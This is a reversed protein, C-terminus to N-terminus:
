GGKEYARFIMQIVPWGLTGLITGLTLVVLLVVKCIDQCKITGLLKPERSLYASAAYLEEGMLTYDCTTIFFPLQTFADTGAIQIAGTLSGAEALILSEAFFYGMFFNAAPRRRSMIGAVAAVYPFQESAVMIVNGPKFADPRGAETYGEQVVEYSISYTIPDQNVVLLDSDYEAIRRSIRGLVSLAALVAIDGVGTLGHVFLAPKGMETARGVAEDIAELGAIPRVFIDPHRRVYAIMALVLAAFLISVIFNVLLAADFMAARARASPVFDFVAAAGGGVAGVGVRFYYRRGAHEREIDKLRKSLQDQIRSLRALESSAFPKEPRSMRRASLMGQLKAAKAASYDALAGALATRAAQCAKLADESKDAEARPGTQRVQAAAELIASESPPEAQTGASPLPPVDAGQMAQALRWMLDYEIKPLSIQRDAIDLYHEAIQVSFRLEDYADYDAVRAEASAARARAAELREKLVPMCKRVLEPTVSDPETSIAASLYLKSETTFRAFATSFSAANRMYAQRLGDLSARTEALRADAEDLRSQLMHARRLIALKREIAALERLEVETPKHKPKHKEAPPPAKAPAEQEYKRIAFKYDKPDIPWRVTLHTGDDNPTPEAIVWSARPLEDPLPPLSPPPPPEPPQPKQAEPPPPGELIQTKRSQLENWLQAHDFENLRVKLGLKRICQQKELALESVWQPRRTKLRKKLQQQIGVTKRAEILIQECEGLAAVASSISQLYNREMRLWFIEASETPQIIVYHENGATLHYPYYGRVGGDTRLAGDCPVRRVETWRRDPDRSIEIIYEYSPPIAEEALAIAALCIAACASLLPWVAARPRNHQRRHSM